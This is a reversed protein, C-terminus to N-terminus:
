HALCVKVHDDPVKRAHSPRGTSTMRVNAQLQPPIIPSTLPITFAHEGLKITRHESSTTTKVESSENSQPAPRNTDSNSNNSAFSNISLQRDQHGRRHRLPGAASVQSAPKLTSAATASHQETNGGKVSANEIYSFLDASLALMEADPNTPVDLHANNYANSDTHMAQEGSAATASASYDPYQTQMDSAITSM